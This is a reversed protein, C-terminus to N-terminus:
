RGEFDIIQELLSSRSFSEIVGYNGDPSAIFRLMVQLRPLIKAKIGGLKIDSSRVVDIVIADSSNVLESILESLETPSMNLQQAYADLQDIEGDCCYALLKEVEDMENAYKFSEHPYAGTSELSFGKLFIDNSQSITPFWSLLFQSADARALLSVGNTDAFCLVADYEPGQETFRASHYLVKESSFLPQLATGLDHSIEVSDDTFTINGAKQQREVFDKYHTDREEPELQALPDAVITPLASGVILFIFVLDEDSLLFVNSM